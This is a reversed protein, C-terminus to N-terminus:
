AGKPTRPRGAEEIITFRGDVRYFAYQREIILHRLLLEVGLPEPKLWPAARGKCPFATSSSRRNRHLSLASRRRPSCPTGTRPFAQSTPIPFVARRASKDCVPGCSFRRAPIHCTRKQQLTTDLSWHSLASVADHKVRVWARPVLGVLM